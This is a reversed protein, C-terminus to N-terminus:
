QTVTADDTGDTSNAAGPTFTATLKWAGTGDPIRSWSGKVAGLSTGGWETGKEGRQFKDVETGSPNYLEVIVNKKASFGSSFGTATTGKAGVIAYFGHAAIVADEPATWTLEEDKNIYVGKLKIKYDSSNYLEFFKENDAGAGYVENIKLKTYDAVPDGVTYSSTASVTVIGKENTVTVFFSVSVKDEQAPIIGTFTGEPSETMNITSAAKTGTTYSIVASTVAQLGSTVAVVTVGSLSTPAEPSYSLKDISTPGVYVDDKVCSAAVFALMLTFCFIIKKM